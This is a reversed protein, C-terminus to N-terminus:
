VGPGAECAVHPVERGEGERLVWFHEQDESQGLLAQLREVPETEGDDALRFTGFHMAVSREAGLMRHAAVAEEPSMHIPGMFWEPRYAGIPLLALRLAPFRSAIEAFHPGFGTDGAVYIRGSATEVMWGCWLTKNRDFPTRAAFHQAPTAHIMM